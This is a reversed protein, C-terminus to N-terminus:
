GVGLGRGLGVLKGRAEVDLGLTIMRECGVGHVGIELGSGVWAGCDLDVAGLGVKGSVGEEQHGPNRECGMAERRRAGLGSGLWCVGGELGSGLGRVGGELGSGLGRVGGELGSGLGRVEGEHDGSLEDLGSGMSRAVGGQGTTARFARKV